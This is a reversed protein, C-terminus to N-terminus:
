FQGHSHLWRQFKDMELPKLDTWGIPWGMIDEWFGPNVTQRGLWTRRLVNQSGGVEQFTGGWSKTGACPTPIKLLPRWSGCDIEPTSEGSINQEWVHTLDWTAWKPWTELLEPQEEFLSCQAIRWSSSGPDFKALSEPWKEGSDQDKEKLEQEKAQLASIRAPSAGVSSMSKGKGPTDMSPAFTMGSLSDLYTATLKGNSCFVGHTIKSKLPVCPEGGLCIDQLSEGEQEALYHWSM